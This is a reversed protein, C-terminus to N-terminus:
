FWLAWSWLQFLPKDQRLSHLLSWLRLASNSRDPEWVASPPTQFAASATPWCTNQAGDTTDAALCRSRPYQRSFLLRQRNTASSCANRGPLFVRQRLCVDIRGCTHGARTEWRWPRGRSNHFAGTTFGRKHLKKVDVSSTFAATGRGCMSPASGLARKIDRLMWTCDCMESVYNGFRLSSSLNGRNFFDVM